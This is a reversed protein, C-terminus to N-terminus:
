LPLLRLLLMNGMSLNWLSSLKWSKLGRQIYPALILNGKLLQRTPSLISGAMGGNLSCSILKWTLLLFWLLLHELRSCSQMSWGSWFQHFQALHKLPIILFLMWRRLLQQSIPLLVHTLVYGKRSLKKLYWDKKQLQQLLLNQLLALCRSVYMDTDIPDVWTLSKM